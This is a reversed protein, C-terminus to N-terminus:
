IKKREDCYFCWNNKSTRGCRAEAHKQVGAQPINVTTSDASMNETQVQNLDGRLHSSKVEIERM